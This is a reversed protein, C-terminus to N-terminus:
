TVAEGNGVVRACVCVCARVCARVCAYVCRVWGDELLHVGAGGGGVWGVTV